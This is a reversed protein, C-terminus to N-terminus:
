TLPRLSSRMSVISEFCDRTSVVPSKRAGKSLVFGISHDGFPSHIANTDRPV